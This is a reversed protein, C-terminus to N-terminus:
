KKLCGSLLAIKQPSQIGPYIKNNIKWAMCSDKLSPCSGLTCPQVLSPLLTNQFLLQQQSFDPCPEQVYLSVRESLCSMWAQMEDESYYSKTMHGTVPFNVTTFYLMGSILGLGLIMM